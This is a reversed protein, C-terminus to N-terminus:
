RRPGEAIIAVYSLCALAMACTAALLLTGTQFGGIAYAGGLRVVVAFVALLAGGIGALRGIWRLLSEM